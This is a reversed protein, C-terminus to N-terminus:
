AMLDKWKTAPEEPGDAGRKVFREKGWMGQHAFGL